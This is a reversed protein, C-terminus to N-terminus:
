PSQQNELLRRVAQRAGNVHAKASVAASFMERVVLQQDLVYTVRGPFLGFTRPVQWLKRVDGKEDALFRFPVNFRRAFGALTDVSATTIGLIEVRSRAATHLRSKATGADASPGSARALEAFEPSADRFACAEATCAPTYPKPFFYVVLVSGRLDSLRVEAGTHDRLTFDPTPSGVRAGERAAEVSHSTM